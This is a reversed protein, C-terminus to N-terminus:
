MGDKALAKPTNESFWFSLTFIEKWLIRKEIWSLANGAVLLVSVTAVYGWYIPRSLKIFVFFLFAILVACSVLFVWRTTRPHTKIATAWQSKLFVEGFWIGLVASAALGAAIIAIMNLFDGM